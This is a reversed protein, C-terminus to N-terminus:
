HYGRFIGRGRAQVRAGQEFEILYPNVRPRPHMPEKAAHISYIITSYTHTRSCAITSNRSSTAVRRVLEIETMMCFTNAEICRNCNREFGGEKKKYKTFRQM